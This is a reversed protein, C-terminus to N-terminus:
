DPSLADDLTACFLLLTAISVHQQGDPVAAGACSQLGHSNNNVVVGAMRPLNVHAALKRPAPMLHKVQIGSRDLRRATIQDLARRIRRGEVDVADEILLGEFLM